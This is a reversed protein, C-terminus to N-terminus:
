MSKLAMCENKQRDIEIEMQTKELASFKIIIEDEDECINVKICGSRTLGTRAGVLKSCFSKEDL